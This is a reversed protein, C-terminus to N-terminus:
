ILQKQTQKAMIEIGKKWDTPSFGSNTIKKVKMGARIPRPIKNSRLFNVISGKKLDNTNRGFTKLLHYAFEYPTTLLPSAVHFIGQLNKDIILDLAPSMDDVFTPTITQDSFMPYMNGEQNRKLIIRAFDLKNQFNARYPYSIRVITYNKIENQVIKESELKTIGYWSLQNLDGGAKAEEDYPGNFGNFVFDTSIHILQIPKDKIESTINKTGEVNINWCIGDKDDRQKEAADVDTFASFLIVIGFEYNRFLNSVSEKSTIDIPIKGNLDTKILNKQGSLQCFRSGVM